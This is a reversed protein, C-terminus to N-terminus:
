CYALCYNDRKWRGPCLKQYSKRQKTFNHEIFVGL